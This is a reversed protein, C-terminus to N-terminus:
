ESSGKRMDIRVDENSHAIEEFLAKMDSMASADMDGEIHLTRM